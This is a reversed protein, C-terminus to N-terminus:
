ARRHPGQRMRSRGSWGLRGGRRLEATAYFTDRWRVGGRWWALAGARLMAIALLVGGLPSVVAPVLHVELWHSLRLSTAVALVATALLLLPSGGLFGVELPVYVLQGLVLLPLPISAGNKEIGRLLGRYSPYFDRSVWNCGHVVLTRAGSQKLMVGLCVDDAVELRLWSLGPSRELATRRVLNFAGIGMAASSEPRSVSWLRGGTVIMRFFAALTPGLLVGSGTMRPILTLHGANEREAHAVVRQLTGPALRVDADSFLIWDGTAHELGRQLAHVKGLWGPPLVDVHVVRLRPEGEALRDAIARTADRSRDDVFVVELNPYDDDLKSRLAAEVHAEEDRGPVILSVRPWFSRAEADGLKPVGRVTRFVCVAVVVWYALSGWALVQLM